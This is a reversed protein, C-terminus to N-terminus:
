EYLKRDAIKKDILKSATGIVRAKEWQKIAENKQGLKFLVDGYHEFIIGSTSSKETALELYKKAEKYKGQKYLVWGHTDLYTPNEPFRKVLKESMIFAKDLDENRLSLYYSYNNLVYENNPQNKLAVDFAKDSQVHDGIGNYADGLQGFFVAALDPNVRAYKSGHELIAIASQYDKQLLHASGQYFYLIAQNPFVELADEAHNIVAEYNARENEINIINQWVSFNTDDKEVSKLYSDLAKQKDGLKYHMDGAIAYSQFRNPHNEQLLVILEDVNSQISEDPLLEIFIALSQLKQEYGLLGSEFPIRLNEMAKKYEGEIRYLDSLSMYSQPNEPNLEIAREIYEAAKKEDSRHILLEAFELLSQEDEKAEILSEWEQYLETYQGLKIYIKQKERTVEIQKGYYDEVKDYTEIAKDYDGSYQYILALDYLYDENGEFKLFMDEYHLAAQPYNGLQTQLNANLLYYYKNNPDLELTKMASPLAKILEGGKIYIESLKYHAAANSPDVELSRGFMEVAKAYDETLYFKEGEIFYFEAQYKEDDTLEKNVSKKNKKKQAELEGGLFLFCFVIVIYRSKPLM